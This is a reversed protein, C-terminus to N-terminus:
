YRDLEGGFVNKDAEKSSRAVKGVVGEGVPGDPQAASASTNQDRVNDCAGDRDEPAQDGEDSGEQASEHRELWHSEHPQM